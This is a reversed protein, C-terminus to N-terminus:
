CDDGSVDLCGYCRTVHAITLKQGKGVKEILLIGTHLQPISLLSQLGSQSQLLITNVCCWGLCHSKEEKRMQWLETVHTMLSQLYASLASNWVWSKILEHSKRYLHSHLFNCNLKCPNLTSCLGSFLYVHWFSLSYVTKTICDINSIYTEAFWQFQIKASRWTASECKNSEKCKKENINHFHQSQPWETLFIFLCFIQLILNQNLIAAKTM